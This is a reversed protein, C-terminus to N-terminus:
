SKNRTFLKIWRDVEQDSLSKENFKKEKFSLYKPHNEKHSLPVRTRNKNLQLAFEESKICTAGFATGYRRIEDDSSVITVKKVKTNLSKVYDIIWQDASKSVPTFVIHLPAGFASERPGGKGDYVITIPCKNAQQFSLLQKETDQRLVELSASTPSPYLKHILNYGDVVIEINRAKM